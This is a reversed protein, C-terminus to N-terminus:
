MLAPMVVVKVTSYFYRGGFFHYLNQLNPRYRIQLLKIMSKYLGILWRVAYSAIM